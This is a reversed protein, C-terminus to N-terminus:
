IEECGIRARHILSRFARRSRARPVYSSTDQLLERLVFHLSFFIHKVDIAIRLCHRATSAIRMSEHPTQLAVGTTTVPHDCGVRTCLERDLLSLASLSENASSNRPARQFFRRNLTLVISLLDIPIAGATRLTASCRTSYKTRIPLANLSYCPPAVSPGFTAVGTAYRSTGGAKLTLYRGYRSPLVLPFARGAKKTVEERKV